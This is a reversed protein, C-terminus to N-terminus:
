KVRPAMELNYLQGFKRRLYRLYPEADLGGGTVRQLLEVPKFKRGHRHINERLWALLPGFEGSRIQSQIEPIQDEILEWWQCAILNGLAYTPFYGMIGMSWHVDQLVGDADDPPTIGLYEQMKDNWATPLEAIPLDDQLIAQELEFRLMIHLNYTAEDAEVRILSPQVKNIAQYFGELGVEGLQDPFAEQLQPYFHEWLPLSRGVLNEWLRSQSEHVSLSAGDALQTRGLDRDIGQEYIAHGAEHLTAFLAKSLYSEDFRTTIRVDDISFNTTFPHPSKDQRGRDLDYGFAQIVREGFEWQKGEPFHQYLPSDDLEPQAAIAQVLEVQHARLDAFIERVQSAKMDPEFDDLLPDYIDEYPKFFDAYARRLQFIEGLRPAFVDFDAEERAQKWEQHAASTARAFDGVWERSVKRQKEIDRGIESVLRAADSDPELDAVEERARGLADMMEDSTFKDHALESLTSLQAGRAVAGGPPMNVHQDWSLVSKAAQLDHVEELLQRFQDIHRPM